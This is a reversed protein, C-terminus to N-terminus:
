FTIQNMFLIDCFLFMKNQVYLIIKRIINNKLGVTTEIAWGFDQIWLM